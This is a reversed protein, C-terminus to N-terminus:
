RKECQLSNSGYWDFEVLVVNTKSPWILKNEADCRVSLFISHFQQVEFFFSNFYSLKMSFGRIFFRLMKRSVALNYPAQFIFLEVPIQRFTFILHFFILSPLCPFSTFFFSTSSSDVNLLFLLHALPLQSNTGRAALRKPTENAAGRGRRTLEDSQTGGERRRTVQLLARVCACRGLSRPMIYCRRSRHRARSM